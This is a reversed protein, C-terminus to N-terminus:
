PASSPRFYGLVCSPDRVAIQIHSKLYIGSGEFAPDGETFLGRVTQFRSGDADFQKMLWNILACDRERKLQDPGGTNRPIQTGESMLGSRFRKFTEPLISTHRTDLLDFCRGLHILAGVVAPKELEGKQQKEMAWELAREPGYEWFYIGEGLWDYDNASHALPTGRCIATDAVAADCGHYGLVFRQYVSLNL